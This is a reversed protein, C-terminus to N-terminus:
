GVKREEMPSTKKVLHIGDQFVRRDFGKVRAATEIVAATMNEDAFGLHAQAFLFKMPDPLLMHRLFFEKLKKLLFELDVVGKKNAM